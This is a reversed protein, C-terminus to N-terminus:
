IEVNFSKSEEAARNDLERFSDAGGRVDYMTVIPLRSEDGSIQRRNVGVVREERTRGRQERDVVQSILSGEVRIKHEFESEAPINILVPHLEVIRRVRHFRADIKRGGDRGDARFVRPLNLSRLEAGVEVPQQALAAAAQDANQVSDIVVYPVRLGVPIERGVIRDVVEAALEHAFAIQEFFIM